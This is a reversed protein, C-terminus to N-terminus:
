GKLGVGKRIVTSNPFYKKFDKRVESILESYESATIEREIIKGDIALDNMSGFDDVMAQNLIDYDFILFRARNKKYEELNM